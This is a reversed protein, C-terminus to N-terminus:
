SLIDDHKDIIVTCMIIERFLMLVNTDTVSVCHKRLFSPVVRSGSAPYEHFKINSYKEFVQGSFELKM